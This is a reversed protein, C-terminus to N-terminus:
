ASSQEWRAVDGTRVTGGDLVEAFAGGGWESEMARQLGARTEEMLNCPRTEGGIRLRCDGIRLVRGRSDALEIGTLMMNARRAAYPVEGLPATLTHWRERDIITVQRKGRLDANGAIGVGAELTLETVTDMPGRRMRKVWLAVVEGFENM